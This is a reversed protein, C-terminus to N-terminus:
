LLQEFLIEYREPLFLAKLSILDGKQPFYIIEINRIKFIM